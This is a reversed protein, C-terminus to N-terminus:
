LLQARYGGYEGNVGTGALFQDSKSSPNLTMGKSIKGSKGKTARVEEGSSLVKVKKERPKTRKREAAM